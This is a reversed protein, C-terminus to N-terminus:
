KNLAMIAMTKLNKVVNASLNRKGFQNNSLPLLQLLTLLSM